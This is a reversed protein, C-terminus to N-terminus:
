SCSASGSGVLMVLAFSTGGSKPLPLEETEIEDVESEVDSIAEATSRSMNPKEAEAVEDVTNGEVDEDLVAGCGVFSKFASIKALRPAYLADEVLDTINSTLYNFLKRISVNM